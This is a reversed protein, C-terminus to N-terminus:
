LICLQSTWACKKFSKYCWFFFNRRGCICNSHTVRVVHTPTLIIGSNYWKANILQNWLKPNRSIFWSWPSFMWHYASTRLQVIEIGVSMTLNYRLFLPIVKLQKTIYAHIKKNKKKARIFFKYSSYLHKALLM